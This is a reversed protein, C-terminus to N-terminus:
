FSSPKKATIFRDKGQMDKFILLDSFSKNILMEITEKGYNANIEFFLSGDDKLSKLAFDAIAVYFELPNQDPVFLALHPEFNLVNKDMLTAEMKTIYPPNSIILDFKQTCQFDRIDAQVLSISTQNSMANQAAIELASHSIDLASIDAYPLNHKLSIAICGSGTGIDIMKLTVEKFKFANIAMEVLEETEPRPILVSSDVKFKLGYFYAESLIYQIPEHNKLRELVIIYSVNDENAILEDLKFLLQIKSFGSIYEAVIYFLVVIEQDDYIGVLVSHYKKLIDKLNM